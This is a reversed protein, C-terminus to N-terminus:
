YKEEAMLLDSVVSSLRIRIRSLVHLEQYLSERLASEGPLSNVLEGTIDKGVQDLIEDLTGEDLLEKVRPGLSINYGM